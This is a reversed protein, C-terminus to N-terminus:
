RREEKASSAADPRATPVLWLLAATLGVAVVGGRPSWANASLMSQAVLANIAAAGAAGVIVALATNLNPLLGTIALAPAVLVFAVVLVQGVRESYQAVGLGIQLGGVATVAAALVRYNVRPAPRPPRPPRPAKLFGAATDRRM